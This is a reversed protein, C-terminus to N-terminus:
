SAAMKLVAVKQTEILKSDFEFWSLVGTAFEDAYKEALIKIEVDKRFNTFLGSMDGYIIPAKKAAIAPMNESIHVPRGLLVYGFGNVFDQSLLYNGETDKLKRLAKLTERNMIWCSNADFAQPITTQLDILEDATIATTSKATVVQTADTIIGRAKTEGTLLEKEIHKAISKAMEVVVYNVIDFDSSNILSNSVKTLAGSLYGALTVQTFKGTHSEIATFEEAYGCTIANVSDDYVPFTMNGKVNYRTSLDLIPSLEVVKSIIRDAITTPIVAGNDGLKMNVAARKEAYATRATRIFNAFAREELEEEETPENAKEETQQDEVDSATEIEQMEALRNITATIAEVDAKLKDFEANEEESFARKETDAKAIIGKMQEILDNKQEKLAKLKM